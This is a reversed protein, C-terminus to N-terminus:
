PPCGPTQDSCDSEPPSSAGGHSSGRAQYSSGKLGRSMSPNRWPQTGPHAPQQQLAGAPAGSLRRAGLLSIIRPFAPVLM